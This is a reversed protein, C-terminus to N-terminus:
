TRSMSIKSIHKYRGDESWFHGWAYTLWVVIERMRMNCVGFACARHISNSFNQLLLCHPTCYSHFIAFLNSSPAGWSESSLFFVLFFFWFCSLLPGWLSLLLLSWLFSCSVALLIALFSFPPCSSMSFVEAAAPVAETSIGIGTIFLRPVLSFNGAGHWSHTARSELGACWSIVLLGGARSWRTWALFSIDWQFELRNLTCPSIEQYSHWYLIPQRICAIFSRRQGDVHMQSVVHM